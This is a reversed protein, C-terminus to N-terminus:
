TALAALLASLTSLRRHVAYLELSVELMQALTEVLYVNKDDLNKIHERVLKRSRLSDKARAADAMLPEALDEDILVVFSRHKNERLARLPGFGVESLSGQGYSDRLIPFLILADEALHKAEEAVLGPHWNDVMPNFYSIGLADYKEMFADRWRVNDCTGFLGICISNEM